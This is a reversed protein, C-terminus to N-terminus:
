WSHSASRESLLPENAQVQGSDYLRNRAKQPDQGSGSRDSANEQTFIRSYTRDRQIGESLSANGRPSILHATEKRGRGHYDRAATRTGQSISTHGWGFSGIGQETTTPLRSSLDWFRPWHHWVSFHGFAPASFRWYWCVEAEDRTGLGEWSLTCWRDTVGSTVVNSKFLEYLKFQSLICLMSYKVMCAALDRSLGGLRSDLTNM